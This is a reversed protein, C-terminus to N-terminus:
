SGRDRHDRKAQDQDDTKHEQSFRLLAEFLCGAGGFDATCRVAGYSDGYPDVWLAPTMNEHGDPCAWRYFRRAVEGESRLEILCYELPQLGALPDGLTLIFGTM